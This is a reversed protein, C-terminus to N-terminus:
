EKETRSFEKYTPLPTVWTGKYEPHQKVILEFYNWATVFIAEPPNLKFEEPSVIPITSGPMFHGARLPSADVVKSIYDIEAVNIWMTARGSAGYAWVEGLKAFKDLGAKIESISRMCNTAFKLWHSLSNLGTSAEDNIIKFYESSKTQQTKSAIVRLSGAHMPVIAAHEIYFNNLNLLKELSQLSHFHLHEHYVTDWQLDQFLSGAYMVELLIKGESNLVNHATKLFGNPDSNHPFTNSASILDVEGLWDLIENESDIGFKLKRVDLGKEKASQTINRSIDVGFTKVGTKKLPTLLIGDNCGVELISSPKLNTSIWSSLEEFHKVLSPITSSSFSYENFLKESDISEAILLVSCSNCYVLNIPFREADPNPLTTFEGVLPLKPFKLVESLDKSGCSRCKELASM